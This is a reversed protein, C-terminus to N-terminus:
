RPIRIRFARAGDDPPAYWRSQYNSGSSLPRWQLPSSNLDAQELLARDVHPSCTIIFFEGDRVISIRVDPVQETKPQVPANVNAASRVGARPQEPSASAAKPGPLASALPLNVPREEPPITERVYRWFNLEGPFTAIIRVYEPIVRIQKQLPIELNVEYVFLTREKDLTESTHKVVAIASNSGNESNFAISGDLRGFVNNKDLENTSSCVSALITGNMGQPLGNADQSILALILRMDLNTGGRGLAIMTGLLNVGDSSDIERIPSLGWYDAYARRGTAKEIVPELTSSRVNQPHTSQRTSPCPEGALLIQGLCFLLFLTRM